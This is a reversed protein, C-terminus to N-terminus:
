TGALGQKNTEIPDIQEQFKKQYVEQTFKRQMFKRGAILLFNDLGNVEGAFLRGAM